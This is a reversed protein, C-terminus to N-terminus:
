RLYYREYEVECTKALLYFCWALSYESHAMM